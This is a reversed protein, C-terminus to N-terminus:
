KEDEKIVMGGAAKRMRNMLAAGMGDEHYGEALIWDIKRADCMRLLDFLRSAAVEPQGAPGLSWVDLDPLVRALERSALVVGRGELRGAEEIMTEKKFAFSGQVVTMRAAPAYHRYKQGPSKPVRDKAVSELAPDVRVTDFIELLMERTVGGPRLIEPVDGSVDLVTSEVGLQAEDAFIIGAIRGDLDDAVHDGKTPSPRGSRNASPAALPVGAAEILAIAVPHSPMRVAVTDLGATVIDPVLGSRPMVLTLPGPWFRKMAKKALPPIAEVLDEVMQVNAV